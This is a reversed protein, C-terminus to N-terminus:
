ERRFNVLILGLENLKPELSAELEQHFRERNIPINGSQVSDMLRDLQTTIIDEAQQSIERQSLGLLRMAANQMLEETVGIAVNYIQPVRFETDGSKLIPRASVTIRHPELQLFGYDQLLPWVFAAGGNLCKFGRERETKGYIVLIRNSPCRKYRQVILMLFLFLLVPIAAFFAIVVYASIDLDNAAFPLTPM